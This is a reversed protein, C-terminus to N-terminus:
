GKARRIIGRGAAAGDTRRGAVPPAGRTSRLKEDRIPLFSPRFASAMRGEKHARRVNYRVMEHLIQRRQKLQLNRQGDVFNLGM